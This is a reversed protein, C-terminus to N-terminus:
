IYRVSNVDFTSYCGLLMRYRDEDEGNFALRLLESEINKIYDKNTNIRSKLVVNSSEEQIFKNVYWITVGTQRIIDQMPKGELHMNFIISRNLEAHQAERLHITTKDQILDSASVRVQWASVKLVKMIRRISCGQSYLERIKEREM